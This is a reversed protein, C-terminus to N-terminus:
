FTVPNLRSTHTAIRFIPGNERWWRSAGTRAPISHAIASNEQSVLMAQLREHSFESNGQEETQNCKAHCSAKGGADDFCPVLIAPAMLM